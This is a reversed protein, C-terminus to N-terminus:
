AGLKTTSWSFRTMSDRPALAGPRSGRRVFLIPAPAKRAIESRLEGLGEQRWRESLGVVLLGADTAASILGEDGKTAVVPEAAIGAFQQVILSANALMRTPDRGEAQGDTAGLVRLPAGSASAIWAALELAAWDHEAGGFPVIVASEADAMVPQNERAVLVGVDAGAERLVVGVDGRPVGAGLLPRRGDLLVLDVPEREALRVLDAGPDTSTFAVARAAIQDEMLEARVAQLQEDAQSLMRFETQLGGRVAAGRPPPVLRALLVERPPESAAILRAIRVLQFVASDNQPAVLISREPLPIPAEAVSERRARDLEQEVEGFENHPDLLRLLPGAMLTTVLAMIVMAAFLASSIVGKDLALNLVILETLGRTNMLTGVVASERWRMLTVRAAIVAGGFKGVIAVAILALTILVLSGRNLLLFNTRLGTFVFFLPLLVTVVFDEVRRTVDETFGAHRPMVIGMMFAGFIVAVGIKDTIYAGLVVSALIAAIWTVPVRGAEDYAVSARSLLPRVALFLAIVFAVTLAVTRLIVLGSGATAVATALAVLFWATVDDVAASALTLAGMPRKLMRREVIIRALVPFATISMAVGMFLAFAAFRKPPGLLTYVPIAVALGAMMPVAVSTNSIALAQSMRGRLAQFDVELGVLFMYFILGLNAAVGLYPVVDAPFLTREVGPFLKGLLTPGLIIGALVEGMVQPQGIRPMLSGVVRAVAMVVVIALFFIAVTDDLSRPMSPAGGAKATPAAGPPPLPRTFVAALPVGSVAKIEGGAVAANIPTAGRTGCRVSGYLRGHKFTLHATTSGSANELDVYQGSQVVTLTSGVCSSGATVNYTGAINPQAHRGSGISLTVTAVAATVAVLVAYYIVLRRRPPAPVAPPPVATSASM